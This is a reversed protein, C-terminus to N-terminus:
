EKAGGDPEGMTMVRSILPYKEPHQITELDLDVDLEPWFLHNKHLLQVSFLQQLTAQRFWPFDEFDLFYEEENVM